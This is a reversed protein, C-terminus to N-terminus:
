AGSCFVRGKAAKAFLFLWSQKGVAGNPAMKFPLDCWVSGKKGVFRIQTNNKEGAASGFRGRASFVFVFFWLGRVLRERLPLHHLGVPPGPVLAAPVDLLGAGHQAQVQPLVAGRGGFPLFRCSRRSRRPNPPFIAGFAEMALKKKKKHLQPNSFCVAALHTPPHTKKPQFCSKATTPTWWLTGWTKEKRTPFWSPRFRPQNLCIMDHAGILLVWHPALGNQIVKTQIEKKCFSWGSPAVTNGRNQWTRKGM